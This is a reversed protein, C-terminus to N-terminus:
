NWSTACFKKLNQWGYERIKQIPYFGTKASQALGEKIQSRQKQTLSSDLKEYFFEEEFDIHMDIEGIIENINVIVSGEIEKEMQKMLEILKDHDKLLTSVFKEDVTQKFECWSFLSKEEYFVHKEFTWRIKKFLELDQSQIAQFRKFEDFLRRIDEHDNIFIQALTKEVM